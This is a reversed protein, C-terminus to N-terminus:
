EHFTLGKSHYYMENSANLRIAEDFDRHAEEYKRVIFSYINLIPEQMSLSSSLNSFVFISIFEFQSYNKVKFCPLLERSHLLEKFSIPRDQNCSRM